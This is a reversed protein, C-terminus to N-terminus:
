RLVLVLNEVSRELDKAALCHLKFRKKLSKNSNSFVDQQFNTLLHVDYDIHYLFGVQFIGLVKERINLYEINCFDGIKPLFLKKDVQQGLKTEKTNNLDSELVFM